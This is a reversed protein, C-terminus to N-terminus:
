LGNISSVATTIGPLRLPGQEFVHKWVVGLVELYVCQPSM